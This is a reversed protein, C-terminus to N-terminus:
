KRKKKEMWEKLFKEQEEDDKPDRQIGAMMLFEIIGIAVFIFILIQM